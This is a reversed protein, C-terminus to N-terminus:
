IRPQCKQNQPVFASSAMLLPRFLGKPVSEFTELLLGRGFVCEFGGTTVGVGTQAVPREVGKQELKRLWWLLVWLSLLGRLLGSTKNMERGELDYRVGVFDLERVPGGASKPSVICGVKM